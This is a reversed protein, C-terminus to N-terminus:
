SSEHIRGVAADTILETPTCVHSTLLLEYTYYTLPLHSAFSLCPFAPLRSIPLPSSFPLCSTAPILFLAPSSLCPVYPVLFSIPSLLFLVPSFLFSISPLFHIIPPPLLYVPSPFLCRQDEHICFHFTSPQHPLFSVGQNRLTAPSLIALSGPTLPSPPLHSLCAVPSLRPLCTDCSPLHYLRKENVGKEGESVEKVREKM